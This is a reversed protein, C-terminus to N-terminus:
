ISTKMHVAHKKIACTDGPGTAVRTRLSNMITWRTEVTDYHGFISSLLTISGRNYFVYRIQVGFGFESYNSSFFQKLGRPIRSFTGINNKIQERSLTYPADDFPGSDFISVSKTRSFTEFGLFGNREDVRVRDNM